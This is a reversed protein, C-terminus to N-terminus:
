DNIGWGAPQRSRSVDDAWQLSDAHWSREATWNWASVPTDAYHPFLQVGVPATIANIYRLVPHAGERAKSDLSVIIACPVLSSTQLWQKLWECVATPLESCTNVALIVITAGNADAMAQNRLMPEDLLDFRWLRVGFEAKEGLRAAVQDIMQKGRLGASLDEHMLLVDLKLSDDTGHIAESSAIDQPRADVYSNVTLRPEGVTRTDM